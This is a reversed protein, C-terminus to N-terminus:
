IIPLIIKLFDNVKIIKKYDKSDKEFILIAEILSIIEELDKYKYKLLEEIKEFYNSLKNKFFIEFIKLDKESIIKM